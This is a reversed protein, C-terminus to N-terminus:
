CFLLLKAILEMSADYRKLLQELRLRGLRPVRTLCFFCTRKKVFVAISLWGKMCDDAERSCSGDDSRRAECCLYIGIM